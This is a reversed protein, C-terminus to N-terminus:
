TQGGIGPTSWGNCVALGVNDERYGLYDVCLNTNQLQLQGSTANFVFTQNENGGAPHAGCETLVLSREVPPSPV